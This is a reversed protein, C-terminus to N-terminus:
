INNDDRPFAAQYVPKLFPIGTLSRSLLFLTSWVLSYALIEENTAHGKLLFHAVLQPGGYGGASVPWYAVNVMIPIAAFLLALPADIGIAKLMIINAVISTFNNIFRYLFIEAYDVLTATKFAAFLEADRIRPALNRLPTRWFALWLPLLAWAAIALAQFATWVDLGLWPLAVNIRNEEPLAFACYTLFVLMTLTENMYIFGAAGTSRLVPTKKVRYMYLVTMIETLAGNIAQVAYSAFRLKTTEILGVEIELRRYTRWFSLADAVYYSALYALYALLIWSLRAGALTEWVKFFDVTRFMYALIGAAILWPAAQRILSPKRPPPAPGNNNSDTAEM